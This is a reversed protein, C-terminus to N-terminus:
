AGQRRAQILLSARQATRGAVFASVGIALGGALPAATPQFGQWVELGFRVAFVGMYTILPEPTGHFLFLGDGALEAKEDSYLRTSTWGAAFLLILTSVGVVLSHEQSYGAVNFLGWVGFAAPAVLALALGRVRSKLRRVGLLRASGSHRLGVM